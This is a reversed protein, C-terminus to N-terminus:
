PLKHSWKRDNTNFRLGLLRRLGHDEYGRREAEYVNREARGGTESPCNKKTQREQRIAVHLSLSAHFDTDDTKDRQGVVMRAYEHGGHASLAGEAHSVWCGRRM